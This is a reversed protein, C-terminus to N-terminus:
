SAADHFLKADFQTGQGMLEADGADILAAMLKKASELEAPGLAEPHRLSLCRYAIQVGGDTAPKVLPRLREWASDDTALVANAEEVVKLLAAVERGHAAEYDEKWIFGVLSPVPDIGLERMVDGITLIERFGSGTLRAAHTWSITSQCRHPGLALEEALLPPAGFSLQAYQAMNDRGLEDEERLRASCSGASKDIASGAVDSRSGELGEISEVDSGKEPM